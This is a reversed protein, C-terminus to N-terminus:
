PARRSFFSWRPSAGAKMALVATIAVIGALSALNIIGGVSSVKRAIEVRREAAVPHGHEDVVGAEADEHQAMGLNGAVTTAVGSIVSTAVLVDKAIVLPRTSRDVERGSYLRRGILWSLAFVLHGLLNIPTFRRWAHHVLQARDPDPIDGSAPQM